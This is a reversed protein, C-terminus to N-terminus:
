VLTFLNNQRVFKFWRGVTNSRWMYGGEAICFLVGTLVYFITPIRHMISTTSNSAETRRYIVMFSIFGLYLCLLGMVNNTKSQPPFASRDYWVKRVLPFFVSTFISFVIIALPRLDFALSNVTFVVLAVALSDTFVSWKYVSTTNFVTTMTTTDLFSFLAAFVLLVTASFIMILGLISLRRRDDPIEKLLRYLAIIIAGDLLCGLVQFLVQDNEMGFEESRIYTSQLAHFTSSYAGWSILIIPALYRLRSGFMAYSFDDFISNGM